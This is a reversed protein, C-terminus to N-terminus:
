GEEKWLQGAEMVNSKECSTVKNSRKKALDFAVRAVRIIENSTYLQEKLILAENFRVKQFTRKIGLRAFKWAEFHTINDGNLIIAGEEPTLFGTAINLLTSKGTGNGGSLGIKTGQKISIDVGNLVSIGKFLKKLGKLELM